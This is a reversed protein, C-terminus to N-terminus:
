QAEGTARRAERAQRQLDRLRADQAERKAVQEPSKWWESALGHEPCDPHWNRSDGVSMRGCTCRDETVSGGYQILCEPFRRDHTDRNWEGDHEHWEQHRDETM